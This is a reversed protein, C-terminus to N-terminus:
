DKKPLLKSLIEYDIDPRDHKCPSMEDYDYRVTFSNQPPGLFWSFVVDYGLIKFYFDMARTNAPLPFFLHTHGTSPAQRSIRGGRFVTLMSKEVKLQTGIEELQQM